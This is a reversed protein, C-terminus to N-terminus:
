LISYPAYDITYKRVYTDEMIFNTFDTYGYNTLLRGLIGM